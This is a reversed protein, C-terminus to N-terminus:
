RLLSLDLGPSMMARPLSTWLSSVAMSRTIAELKVFDHKDEEQLIESKTRFDVFFALNLFSLIEALGMEVEEVIRKTGKARL